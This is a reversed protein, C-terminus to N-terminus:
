KPIQRGFFGSLNFTGDERVRVILVVILWIGHLPLSTFFAKGTM